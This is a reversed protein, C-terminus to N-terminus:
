HHTMAESGAIVDLMDATTQEQRAMREKRRLKELREYINRAARNACTNGARRTFREM